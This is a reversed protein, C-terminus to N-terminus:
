IHIQIGLNNLGILTVCFESRGPIVPLNPLFSNSLHIFFFVIMFLVRLIGLISSNRSKLSKLPLVGESGRAGGKGGEGLGRGRYNTIKLDSKEEGDEAM